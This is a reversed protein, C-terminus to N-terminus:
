QTNGAKGFFDACACYDSCAAAVCVCANLKVRCYINNATNCKCNNDGYANYCGYEALLFLILLKKALRGCLLSM